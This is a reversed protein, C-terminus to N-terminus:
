KIDYLDHVNKQPLKRYSMEGKHWEIWVKEPEESRLDSYKLSPNM